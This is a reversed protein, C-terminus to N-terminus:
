LNDLSGSNLMELTDEKSNFMLIDIISLGIEFEKGLQKYEPLPQNIFSLKISKSQYKSKDFFSEGGSANIYNDYGLAMCINLAWEDPAEPSIIDLDMESFVSIETSINLYECVDILVIKNLESITDVDNSLSKSVLELVSHFYPAKKKYVNLQAIIKNKWDSANDILVENIATGLPAKILPVKIYSAGGSEKIIRNREIWGKRMFQPTDFIIFKDAQAILSFYGLYPYFYPQMIAVKM